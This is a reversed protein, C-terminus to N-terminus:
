ITAVDAAISGTSLCCLLEGLLCGLTLHHGLVLYYWYALCNLFNELVTAFHERGAIAAVTFVIAGLTVWIFRPVKVAWMGVNQMSLAASYLSPITLAVTSFVLGLQIFKGFGYAASGYGTFSEDTLGGIGAIAYADAFAQNNFTATMLAAGLWMVFVQGVVVGLILSKFVFRYYRPFDM